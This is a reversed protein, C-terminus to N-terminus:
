FRIPELFRVFDIWLEHCIAFTSDKVRHCLSYTGDMWGVLWGVFLSLVRPIKWQDSKVKDFTFVPPPRASRIVKKPKPKKPQVPEPAVATPPAVPESAAAEIQEKKAQSLALKAKMKPHM